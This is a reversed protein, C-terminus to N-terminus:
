PSNDMKSTLNFLMRKIDQLESNISRKMVSKTTKTTRTTRRSMTRAIRSYAGDVHDEGDDEDDDEDIDGKHSKPFETESHESDDLKETSLKPENSVGSDGIAESSGADPLTTASTGLLGRELSEIRQRLVGISTVCEHLMNYTDSVTMSEIPIRGEQVIAVAREVISSPLVVHVDKSRGRVKLRGAPSFTFVNGLNIWRNMGETIGNCCLMWRLFRNSAIDELYVIFEAQKRLRKISGEKQLGQIDNVALGILLNM